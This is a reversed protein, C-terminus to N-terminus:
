SIYISHLEIGKGAVVLEMTSADASPESYISSTREAFKIDEPTISQDSGKGQSWISECSESTYDLHDKASRSVLFSFISEQMTGTGLGEKRISQM